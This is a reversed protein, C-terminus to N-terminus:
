NVEKREFPIKMSTSWSDRSCSESPDHELRMQGELQGGHVFVSAELLFEM